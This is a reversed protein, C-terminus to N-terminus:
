LISIIIAQICNKMDSYYEDLLTSNIHNPNLCGFCVFMNKYKDPCRSKFDCVFDSTISFNTGPGDEGLLVAMEVDSDLLYKTLATPNGFMEKVDFERKEDKMMLLDQIDERLLTFNGVHAHFDIVKGEYM